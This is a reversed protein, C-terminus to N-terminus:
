FHLQARAEASMREPTWRPEWVVDVELKEPDTKDRLARRVGGVITDHLPCGPTTLTMAIRVAGSNEDIAVEYILGLDVINVGLEPDYVIRLTDRVQQESVM